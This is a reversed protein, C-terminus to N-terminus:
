HSIPNMAILILIKDAVSSKNYVELALNLRFGNAKKASSDYQGVSFVSREM